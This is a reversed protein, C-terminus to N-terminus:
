SPDREMPQGRAGLPLEGIAEGVETDDRGLAEFRRGRPHDPRLLASGPLDM